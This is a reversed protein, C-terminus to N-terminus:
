SCAWDRKIQDLSRGGSENRMEDLQEDSYPCNDSERRVERGSLVPSFRGLLRGQRDRFETPGTLVALEHQLPEDIVVVSM